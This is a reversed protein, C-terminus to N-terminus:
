AIPINLLQLKSPLSIIAIINHWSLDSWQILILFFKFFKYGKRLSEDKLLIILTLSQFSLSCPPSKFIPLLIVSAFWFFLLERLHKFSRFVIENTNYLNNIKTNDVYNSIKMMCYPSYNQGINGMKQLPLLTRIMILKWLLVHVMSQIQM